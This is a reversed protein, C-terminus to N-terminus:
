RLRRVSLGLAPDTGDQVGGHADLGVRVHRDAVTILATDGQLWRVSVPLMSSGNLVVIEFAVSDGGLVRARRLLQQALAVSPVLYPQTGGPVVQRWIQEPGSARGTRTLSDRAPGSLEAVSHQAPKSDLAAGAPWLRLELRVIAEDPAITADYEIRSHDGHVITGRLHGPSRTYRETAVTDRDELVLFGGAADEGRGALEAEPRRADPKRCAALAVGAVLALALPLRRVPM